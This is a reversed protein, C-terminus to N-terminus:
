IERIEIGHIAKMLKAKLRYLPLKRTAPSKVDEVVLGWDPEVTYKTGQAKLSSEFASDYPTIMNGFHIIKGPMIERYDFDSEYECVKQGKVELVWARHYTLGRIRGSKELLKLEQYRGAEKKSDFRIGDVITPKNRYKQKGLYQM